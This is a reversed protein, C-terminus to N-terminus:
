EQGSRLCLVSTIPIMLSQKEKWFNTLCTKQQPRIEQNLLWVSFDGVDLQLPTGEVAQVQLESSEHGSHLRTCYMINLLSGSLSNM